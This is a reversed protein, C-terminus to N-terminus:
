PNWNWENSSKRKRMIQSEDLGTICYVTIEM